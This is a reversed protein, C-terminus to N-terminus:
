PNCGPAKLRHTSHIQLGAHSVAGGNAGFAKTRLLPGKGRVYAFVTESMADVESPSLLGPLVFYGDREFRERYSGAGSSSSSSSSSTSAHLLHGLRSALGGEADADAAAGEAGEDDRMLMLEKSTKNRKGKKSSSGMAAAKGRAGHVGDAALLLSLSLLALSALLPTRRALTRPRRRHGM